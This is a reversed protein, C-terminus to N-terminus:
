PGLPNGAVERDQKHADFLGFVAANDALEKSRLLVECHFPDDHVKDDHVAALM